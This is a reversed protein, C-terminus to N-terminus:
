VLVLNSYKYEEFASFIKDLSEKILSLDQNTSFAASNTNMFVEIDKFGAEELSMKILNECGSCHMGIIDIKYNM